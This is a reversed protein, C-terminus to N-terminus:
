DGHDRVQDQGVRVGFQDAAPPAAPRRRVRPRTWWSSRRAREALDVGAFGAPASRTPARIAVRPPGANGARPARARPTPSPRAARPGPSGPGAPRTSRPWRQRRVGVREDSRAPRAAGAAGARRSDVLEGAAVTAPTRRREAARRLRGLVARSSRAREDPDARKGRARVDAERRPRGQWHEMTRSTRTRPRATSATRPAGAAHDVVEQVRDDRGLREDMGHERVRRQRSRRCFRRYAANAHVDRRLGRTSRVRSRSPADARAGVERALEVVGRARADFSSRRRTSM